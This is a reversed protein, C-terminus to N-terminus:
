LALYADPRSLDRLIFGPSPALCGDVEVKIFRDMQFISPTETLALWAGQAPPCIRGQWPNLTSDQHVAGPLHTGAFM